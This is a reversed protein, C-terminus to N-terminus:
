KQASRRLIQMLRRVSWKNGGKKRRMCTFIQFITIIYHKSIKIFFPMAIEATDWKEASNDVFNHVVKHMFYFLLARKQPYSRRVFTSLPQYIFFFIYNYKPMSTTSQIHNSGRGHLTKSNKSITLYPSYHKPALREKRSETQKSDGIM